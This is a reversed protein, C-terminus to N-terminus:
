NVVMSFSYIGGEVTEPNTKGPLYVDASCNEPIDVTMLFNKGELKWDVSIKGYMTKTSAKVFKM